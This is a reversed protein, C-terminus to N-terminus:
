HLNALANTSTEVLWLSDSGDPYRAIYSKQVYNPFMEPPGVLLKGSVQSEAEWNFDKFTFKGIHYAPLQDVWTLGLDEFSWESSAKQVVIPDLKLYFSAYIQPESLRRAIIIEEYEGEHAQIYALAAERGELMARSQRGPQQYWYDEVFFTFQSLVVFILLAYFLKQKKLTNLRPKIADFLFIAGTASAIQIAPMMIAARNAAFGPGVSLAAPIPALLLWVLLWNTDKIKERAMGIVLGALTILEFTYLVGRGPLMGYTGEAPGQTFYFRLSFYQLYNDFFREKLFIAKNNFLKAIVESEGSLIAPLRDNFINGSISTISSSGLRGTGSGVFSYGTLTLALIAIMIAFKTHPTVKVQKRSFVVIVGLILPAVFRASHYSFLNLGFFLSSLLYFKPNQHGKKYFLLTLPLLLTTLNAEFAGRSLMIHWPSISLLFASLLALNQNNKSVKLVLFYTTLIAGSGVLANTLRISFENLGFVAVSPIALYTLLPLKYDGFSKLSLPLFNGWQDRGTKLISYADYGFSAEDPTFGSPHNTLGITRLLLGLVFVGLLLRKHM